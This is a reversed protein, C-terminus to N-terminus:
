QETSYATVGPAAQVIEGLLRSLRETEAGVNVGSFFRGVLGTEVVAFAMWEDTRDDRNGCCIFKKAPKQGLLVCWGFDEPVVAEVPEGRARFQDAVYNAFARGFRKANTSGDEGPEMPFATTQIVHCEGPM